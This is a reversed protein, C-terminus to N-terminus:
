LTRGNGNEASGIMVPTVIGSRLDAVLDDFVADLAPEQDELLQEMLADDHDALTELM